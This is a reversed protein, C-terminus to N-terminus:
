DSTELVANSRTEVEEEEEKEMQQAATDEARRTFSLL